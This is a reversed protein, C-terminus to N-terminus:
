SKAPCNDLKSLMKKYLTPNFNKTSCNEYEQVTKNTCGNGIMRALETQSIGMANRKQMLEKAKDHTIKKLDYMEGGANLKQFEKTGPPNQKPQATKYFQKNHIIVPTWDQNDYQM